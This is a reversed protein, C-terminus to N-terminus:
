LCESVFKTALWSEARQLRYQLTSQPIGVTDALDNLSTERPTQYYGHEVALELAERQEYSLKAATIAEDTWHTPETLHSLNVNLGDPLEAQMADYLRGVNADNRMLIRWEYQNEKRQTEYLLGDGLHERALTPLSRCRSIGSRYTYITCSTTDQALREYERHSQCAPRNPCENCRETDLLLHELRDIAAEPGTIHDLRWMANDAVSCAISKSLATPYEIYVDAVADIGSEYEITIVFERM